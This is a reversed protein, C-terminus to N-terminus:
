AWDTFYKMASQTKVATEYVGQYYQAEFVEPYERKIREVEEPSADQVAQALANRVYQSKSSNGKNNEVATQALTSAAVVDAGTGGAGATFGAVGLSVINSVTSKEDATLEKADKGYM